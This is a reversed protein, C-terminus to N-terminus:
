LIDFHWFTERSLHVDIFDSNKTGIAPFKQWKAAFYASNQIELEGSSHVFVLLAALCTLSRNSFRKGVEERSCLGCLDIILCAEVIGKTNRLASFTLYSKFFSKLNFTKPRLWFWLGIVTSQLVPELKHLGFWIVSTTGYFRWWGCWKLLAM